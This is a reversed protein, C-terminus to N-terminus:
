CRVAVSTDRYSGAGTLFDVIFGLAFFCYPPGPVNMAWVSPRPDDSLGLPLGFGCRPERLSIGDHDEFDDFVHFAAADM